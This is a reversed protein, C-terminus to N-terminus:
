TQKSPKAVFSFDESATNEKTKYSVHYLKSEYPPKVILETGIELYTRYSYDYNYLMTDDGYVYCYHITDRLGDHDTRNIILM